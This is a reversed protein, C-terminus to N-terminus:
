QMIIVHLRVLEKEFIKLNQVNKDLNQFIKSKKFIKKGKQNQM